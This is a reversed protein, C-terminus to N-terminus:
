LAEWAKDIDKILKQIKPNVPTDKHVKEYEHIIPPEYDTCVWEVIEEMVDSDIEGLLDHLHDPDDAEVVFETGKAIVCNMYVKYKPM